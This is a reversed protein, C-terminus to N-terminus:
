GVIVRMKSILKYRHRKNGGNFTIGAQSTERPFPFIVAFHDIMTTSALTFNVSMVSIISVYRLTSIRSSLDVLSINDNPYKARYKGINEWVSLKNRRPFSVTTILCRNRARWITGFTRWGSFCIRKRVHIEEGMRFADFGIYVAAPQGTPRSPWLYEM